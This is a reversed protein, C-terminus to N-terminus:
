DRVQKALNILREIWRPAHSYILIGLGYIGASIAFICVMVVYIFMNLMVM